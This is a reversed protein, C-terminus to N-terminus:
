ILYISPHISRYISRYISLIELLKSSRPGTHIYHCFSVGLAPSQDTIILENWHRRLRRHSFGHCLQKVKANARKHPANAAAKQSWALPRWSISNKKQTKNQNRQCKRRNEGSHSLKKKCAHVIIEIGVIPRPELHCPLVPLTGPANKHLFAIDRGETLDHFFCTFM